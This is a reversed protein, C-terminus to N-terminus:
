FLTNQKPPEPKQKKAKKVPAPNHINKVESEVPVEDNTLNELPVPYRNSNPGEVIAVSGNERIVKVEDGQKGYQDGPRLHSYVDVKLKM